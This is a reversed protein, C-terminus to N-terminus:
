AGDDQDVIEIGARTVSQDVSCEVRMWPEYVRRASPMCSGGTVIAIEEGSLWVDFEYVVGCPTDVIVVPHRPRRDYHM